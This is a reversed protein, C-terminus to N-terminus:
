KKKRGAQITGDLKDVEVCVPHGADNLREIWRTKMKTPVHMHEIGEELRQRLPTQRSFNRVQGNLVDLGPRVRTTYETWATAIEVDGEDSRVIGSKAQRALVWSKVEEEQGTIHFVKFPDRQKKWLESQRAGRPSGALLIHYIKGQEKKAKVWQMIAEFVLDDNPVIRGAAMGVKYEMLKLGIATQREMHLNLIFSTDGLIVNDSNALGHILELKTNKGCARPGTALTYSFEETMTKILKTIKTTASFYKECYSLVPWAIIYLLFISLAFM